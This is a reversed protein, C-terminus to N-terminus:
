FGLSALIKRSPDRVSKEWPSTGHSMLAKFRSKPKEATCAHTRSARKRWGLSVYAVSFSGLCVRKHPRPVNWRWRQLEPM